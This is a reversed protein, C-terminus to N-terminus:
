REEIEYEFDSNMRKAQNLAKRDTGCCLNHIKIYSEQPVDEFNYWGNKLKYIKKKEM